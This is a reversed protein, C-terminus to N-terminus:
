GSDRVVMQFGFDRVPEDPGTGDMRALIAHAAARGIVASDVRLTTLAPVTDAAFDLDGFGVVAMRQPVAIGQLGAEMLAGVAILDSACYVADIEPHRQLLAALGERGHRMRSPAGGQYAPLGDETGQVLGLRRAGAQFGRARLVARPESATILALRRRGQAHLYSAIAEGAAEHSFGVVMDIPADTMDWAEVVPLGTARLRERAAESQMVGVVVIGDPRRAIVADVLAEERAPDYGKEGLMVQYGAAALTASMAQVASLFASGSSITPVVCAILRSRNSKLGGAVLNPVYGTARVADHVRQRTEPTVLAPNSLARSATIKSVGAVRAVDVLTISERLVRTAAAPPADHRISM